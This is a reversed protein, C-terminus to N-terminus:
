HWKEYYEHIYKFVPLPFFKNTIQNSNQDKIKGPDILIVRFRLTRGEEQAMGTQYCVSLVTELQTRDPAPVPRIIEPLGLPNDAGSCEDWHKLVFDALDKPYSHHIPSM